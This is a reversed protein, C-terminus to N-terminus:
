AAIGLERTYWAPFAIIQVVCRCRPHVGGPRGSQFPMGALVVTGSARECVPCTRRDLAADWFALIVLTGETQEKPQASRIIRDREASFAEATETIGITDLRYQIGKLAAWSPDDIGLEFAESYKKLYQRGTNDGIVRARDLDYAADLSSARAVSGVGALELSREISEAGDRRSEQRARSVAFTTGSAIASAIIAPGHGDYRRVIERATSELASANRAESKLLGQLGM